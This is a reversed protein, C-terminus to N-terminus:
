NRKRMAILKGFCDNRFVWLGEDHKFVVYPGTVAVNDDILADFSIDGDDDKHNQRFKDFDAVNNRNLTVSNKQEEILCVFREQCEAESAHGDVYKRYTDTILMANIREREEADSCFEVGEAVKHRMSSFGDATKGSNMRKM